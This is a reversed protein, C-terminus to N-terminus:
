PNTGRIAAACLKRANNYLSVTSWFKLAQLEGDQGDLKRSKISLEDEKAQDIGAECVKADLERQHAAVLAAFAAITSFSVIGGGFQVCEMGAHGLDAQEVWQKILEPTM